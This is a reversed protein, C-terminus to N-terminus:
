VLWGHRPFDDAHGFADLWDGSGAVDRSSCGDASTCQDALDCLVEHITYVLGESRRDGTAVAILGNLFSYGPHATEFRSMTRFYYTSPDVTETSARSKGADDDASPHEDANEERPTSM